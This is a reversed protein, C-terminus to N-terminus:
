KKFIQLLWKLLSFILNFIRVLQPDNRTLLLSVNIRDIPRYISKISNISRLKKVFSNGSKIGTTSEDEIIYTLTSIQLRRGLKNKLDYTFVFDSGYHPLKQHDPKTGKITPYDKKPIFLLRTPAIDVSSDKAYEFRQNLYPYKHFALCTNLIEYGSRVVIGNKVTYFTSPNKLYKLKNWNELQVDCNLIILNVCEFTNYVYELGFANSKAWFSDNNVKIIKLFDNNRLQNTGSEVIILKSNEAYISSISKILESLQKHQNHSTTLFVNEIM